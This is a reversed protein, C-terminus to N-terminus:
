CGAYNPSEYDGFAQLVQAYIQNRNTCAGRCPNCELDGNVRNTASGFQGAQVGSDNHVNVRWFWFATQWAVDENYAVQDPDQVLRDDGYLDQSAARYNYSWTLQIYGRGYYFKNPDDGPSRYDGPCNNGQCRIESKYQLGGSEWLIEALFMALERVSTIGGASAYNNIFSNYQGDSPTPYGTSTVAAIFQEYSVIEGGSPTPPPTPGPSPSGSLCVVQGIQLNDCNIGPNLSYFQDLSLGNNQAILYCYEGPQVTYQRDCTAAYTLLLCLSAFVFATKMKTL